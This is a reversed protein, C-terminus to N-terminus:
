RPSLRQRTLFAQALLALSALSLLLSAVAAIQPTLDYQIATFMRVPLTTADPSQLFLAIVVEDFCVAFAFIAGAAVGPRIAPWHVHYLVSISGAGLSRASRVLLPNLGSLAAQVTVFVYPTVLVSYALGIEVWRDGLQVYTFFLYDGLGLVVLPIVMPTLIIGVVAGKGPFRKRHLGIAATSGAVCAICVALVSVKLSIITSDIWRPDNFYDTFSHVSIWIPPFQI